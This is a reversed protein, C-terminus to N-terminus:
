LRQLWSQAKPVYESDPYQAILQEFYTRAKERQGMRHYCRGLMLTADDKKYSEPYNFVQLFADAAASFNRKGFYCEGVWYICNSALPHSPYSNRLMTFIEIARDYNRNGFNRLAEQYSANFDVTSTRAQALERQLEAIRAERLQIESKLSNIESERQNILAQLERLRQQLQEITMDQTTSPRSPTPEPAPTRRSEPEVGLSRLIEATEEDIEPEAEPQVQTTPTTGAIWEEKKEKKEGTYFVVGVRSNFYGDKAKGYESFGDLDDTNTFRYDAMATLATRPNIYYDFGGGFMYAMDWFPKGEIAPDGIAWPKERHYTFNIAGLGATAYPRFVGSSLLYLNAKLDANFVNTTFTRKTFGDSLQGYGLGLALNFRNSFPYRLQGEGALTFGTHLVDCYPKQLGLNFGIGLAPPTEQALGTASVVLVAALLASYLKM